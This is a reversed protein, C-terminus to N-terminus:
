NLWPSCSYVMCFESMGNPWINYSFCIEPNIKSMGPSFLHSVSYAIKQYPVQVGNGENNVTDM